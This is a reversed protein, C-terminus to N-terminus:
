VKALKYDLSFKKSGNIGLFLFGASLGINKFFGNLQSQESFDNLFILEEKLKELGSNTIPEKEM